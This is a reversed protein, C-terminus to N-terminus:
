ELIESLELWRSEVAVQEELTRLHQTLRTLGVHDSQDHEALEIHKDAIQEALRTLQRDITAM